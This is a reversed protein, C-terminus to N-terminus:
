AAWDVSKGRKWTDYVNDNLGHAPVAAKARLAAQATRYMGALRIAGSRLGRYERRNWVLVKGAQQIMGVAYARAQIETSYRGGSADQGALPLSVGDILVARVVGELDFTNLVSMDDPNPNLAYDLLAAMEAHNYASSKGYIVRLTKGIEKANM